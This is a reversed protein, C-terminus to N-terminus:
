ICKLRSREHPAGFGSGSMPLPTVAEDQEEEGEEVGGNAVSCGAGLRSVPITTGSGYSNATTATDSNGVGGRVEDGCEDGCSATRPGSVHTETGLKGGTIHSAAGPVDNASGMSAECPKIVPDGGSAETFCKLPDGLRNSSGGSDEEETKARGIDVGKGSHGNSLEDDNAQTDGRRGLQWSPSMARRNVPGKRDESRGRGTGEIDNVGSGESNNRPKSDGGSSSRIAARPATAAAAAAAPPQRRARAAHRGRWAQNDSRWWLALQSLLIVMLVVLVNVGQMEASLPASGDNAMGGANMVFRLVFMAGDRLRGSVYEIAGPEDDAWLSPPFEMSAHLNHEPDAHMQNMWSALKSLEADLRREPSSLDFDANVAHLFVPRGQRLHSSSGRFWSSGDFSPRIVVVHVARRSEMQRALDRLGVARAAFAVANRAHNMMDVAPAGCVAKTLEPSRAAAAAKAQAAAAARGAANTGPPPAMNTLRMAGPVRMLWDCLTWQTSADLWVLRLKGDMYATAAASISPDRKASHDALHRGLVALRRRAKDMQPGRHGVAVVCTDIMSSGSAAAARGWLCGLSAGTALRLPPIEQWLLGQDEIQQHLESAKGPPVMVTRPVAGPGRLFVVQGSTPPSSLGLASQWAAASASDDAQIHGRAVTLMNKQRDALFRLALSGSGGGRGFAVVVVKYPSARRLFSALAQPELQPVKPLRLLRDAVFDQLASLRLPGRYRVFCSAESCGHPVALLVPLEKDMLVGSIPGGSRAILHILSRQFRAHIRGLGVSAGDKNGAGPHAGGLTRWLSEWAPAFDCCASSSESYVMILWPRGGYIVLSRFNSITLFSTNSPLAREHQEQEQQQQQQYFHQQQQYYQYQYQYQHRSSSSEQEQQHRNYSEDGGGLDYQRKKDVDSLIEYAQQVEIFKAQGKPNKDPHYMLALKKYAKKIAADDAGRQVGLIKYPDKGYGYTFPVLLCAFAALLHLLVPVTKM